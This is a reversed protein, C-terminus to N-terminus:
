YLKSPSCFERWEQEELHGVQDLVLDVVEDKNKCEDCINDLDKKNDDKIELEQFNKIM